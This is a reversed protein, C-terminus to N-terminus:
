SGFEGRSLKRLGVDRPNLELAQRYLARARREHGARVELDGMILNLYNHTKAQPSVMDPSTRRVSPTVVEIGDRFLRARAKLPLPTCEM